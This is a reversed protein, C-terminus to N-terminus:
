STFHGCQEYSPGGFYQSSASENNETGVSSHGSHPPVASTDWPWSHAIWPTFNMRQVFSGDSSRTGGDRQMPSKLGWRGRAEAQRSSGDRRAGRPASRLLGNM